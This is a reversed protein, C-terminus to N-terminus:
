TEHSFDEALGRRPSCAVHPALPARRGRRTRISPASFAWTTSLTSHVRRHWWTPRKRRRHRSEPRRLRVPAPEQIQVLAPGQVQVQAPELVQAPGLAQVQVQVQVQARVQV